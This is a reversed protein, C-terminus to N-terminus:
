IVKSDRLAYLVMLVLDLFVLSFLCGAVGLFWNGAPNYYTPVQALARELATEVAPRLLETRSRWHLTVNRMAEFPEVDLVVDKELYHAALDPKVLEVNVGQPSEHVDPSLPQAAFHTDAGERVALPASPPGFNLFLRNGVRQWTVGLA